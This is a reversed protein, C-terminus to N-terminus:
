ASFGAKKKQESFEYQEAFQINEHVMNIVQDTYDMLSLRGAAIETLKYEMEATIDPVTLSPVIANRSLSM